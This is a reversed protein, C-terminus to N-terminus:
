TPQAAPAEEPAAASKRRSERVVTGEHDTAELSVRPDLKAYILDVILNFIVITTSILVFIALVVPLDNRRVSAALLSGLGPLGYVREVFIANVLWVGLDMALMTVIPLSANRMIHSRLILGEGAGKARATRVYDENKAELVNARIMRMYFAAYLLAFTLWPLVLHYAWDAPGACRPAPTVLDCYGGVPFLEFKSGLYYSLILGVWVPHASIGILVLVTAARDLLSRPRFASLIGVPIAILLWIIAGGFVLSATVPIAELVMESVDRRITWSEGFSGHLAKWVFTGYEEYIPGQVGLSNRLDTAESSRGQGVRGPETPIVFFLVFSALTIAFFLAVAWLLRKFVYSAM